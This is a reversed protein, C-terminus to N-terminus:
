IIVTCRQFSLTTEKLHVCNRVKLILFLPKEFSNPGIELLKNFDRRPMMLDIDNDWPIKVFM